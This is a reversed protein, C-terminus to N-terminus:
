EGVGRDLFHGNWWGAIVGWLLSFVIVIIPMMAGLGLGFLGIGDKIPNFVLLTAAAPGMGLILGRRWGPWSVFVPVLFVFGWLGGWVVRQYIWGPTLDFVLPVGLILFAGSQSAIWILITTVFGALAGAAFCHHARHLITPM